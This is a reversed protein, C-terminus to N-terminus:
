SDCDHTYQTCLVTNYLLMIVEIRAAINHLPLLPEYINGNQWRQHQKETNQRTCTVMSMFLM